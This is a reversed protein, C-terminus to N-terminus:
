SVRLICVSFIGVQIRKVLYQILSRILHPFLANLLLLVTMAAFLIFTFLLVYRTGRFHESVHLFPIIALVLLVAMPIFLIFAGLLLWPLYFTWSSSLAKGAAQIVYVTWSVSLVVLVFQFVEWSMSRNRGRSEVGFIFCRAERDLLKELAYVRVITERNVEYTSLYDVYWAIYCTLSLIMLLLAFSYGVQSYVAEAFILVSVSALLSGLTWVNRNREDIQKNLTNYEEL